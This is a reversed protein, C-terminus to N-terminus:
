TEGLKELARDVSVGAPVLRVVASNWRGSDEAADVADEYRM